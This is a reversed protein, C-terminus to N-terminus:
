KIHCTLCLASGANDVWTMDDNSHRNHPEHCSTCSVVLDPPTGPDADLDMEELDMGHPFTAPDQMWPVGVPYVAQSGVPHDDQLDTGLDGTPGIYTTGTTAGGFNDMAVTGDHCSMCLITRPGLDDVDGASGDFLTYTAQTLEHNWLPARDSVTLMARHPTHCPLCVRGQSWGFPGFNHESNLIDAMATAAFGAAAAISVSLIFTRPRM